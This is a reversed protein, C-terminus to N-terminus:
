LIALAQVSHSGCGYSEVRKCTIMIVVIINIGLLIYSLNESNNMFSNHM